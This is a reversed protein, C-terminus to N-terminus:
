SCYKASFSILGKKFTTQVYMLISNAVYYNIIPCINICCKKSLIVRLIVDQLKTCRICFLRILTAQVTNAAYAGVTDHLIIEQLFRGM